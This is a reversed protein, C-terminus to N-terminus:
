VGGACGVQTLEKNADITEAIHKKFVPLEIDAIRQWRSSANRSIGTDKLSITGDHSLKPKGPKITEKLIEGARREAWLKLEAYQNQTKLGEGAQKAYARLAL